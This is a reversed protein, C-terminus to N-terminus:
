KTTCLLFPAKKTCIQVLERLHLLFGLVLLLISVLIDIDQPGLGTRAFLENLAGTTVMEAEMM